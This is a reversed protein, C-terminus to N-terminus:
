KNQSERQKRFAEKLEDLLEEAAQREWDEEPIDMDGLSLNSLRYQPPSPPAMVQHQFTQNEVCRDIDDVYGQFTGMLVTGAVIPIGSVGGARWKHIEETLFINGYDQIRRLLPHKRPGEDWEFNGSPYWDKPHFNSAIIVLKHKMQSHSGKAPFKAPYRDLLQNMMQEKIGTTIPSFEDIFIIEEDAYGTWWHDSQDKLYYRWNYKRICAEIFAWCRLSKQTGSPGCIIILGKPTKEILQGQVTEHIAEVWKPHKAITKTHQPDLLLDHKRRGKKVEEIYEWLENRKGPKADRDRKKNVKNGIIPRQEPGPWEYQSEPIHEKETNWCYDMYHRVQTMVSINNREVIPTINAKGIALGMAVRRMQDSNIYMQLHRRQTTPCIEEQWRVYKIGRGRWSNEVESKFNRLWDEWSGTNPPQFYTVAWHTGKPSGRTENKNHYIAPDFQM